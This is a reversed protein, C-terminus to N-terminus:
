SWAVMLIIIIIFKQHDSPSNLVKELMYGKTIAALPKHYCASACQVAQKRVFVATQQYITNHTM